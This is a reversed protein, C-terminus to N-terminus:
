NGEMNVYLPNFRYLMAAKRNKRYEGTATLRSVISRRFNPTDVKLGSVAEYATQVEKLTFKEPLLNFLLGSSVANSRLQDVAMNVPKIHDAALEDESMLRSSRKIYNGQVTETIEYSIEVEGKLTLLSVRENEKLEVTKKEVTFWAAERADYGGRVDRLNEEPSLSLYATSITRSRPDRDVKGLTYLQRFYAADSVNTEEKLERLVATDLDEDYEVFGGPLAWRGIWPHNRRKILLLQLVGDRVTFLLMDVTNNAKRYMSDDYAALFESESQGKENLIEM